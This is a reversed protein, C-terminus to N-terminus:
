EDAAGESGARTASQKRSSVTLEVDDGNGQHSRSEVPRLRMGPAAGSINSVVVRQGPQLGESILALEGMRHRVEVQRISLTSDTDVLWLREGERLATRPLAILNELMKGKVQVRVFSGIALEPTGPPVSDFPDYVRVIIRALRGAPDLVGLSRDVVGDYSYVGSGTDLMVEAESGPITLWPLDSQQLTVEIEFVDTGYVAAIQSSPGVVQGPSVNRMRVRCNFPATLTTRELNLEASHLSAIASAHAAQAQKLQPQHLVLADPEDRRTSDGKALREWEQRAIRANAQAMELQYEAQAVQARAQEVRLEYDAQEIRLMAEGADFSGGAVLKPSVWDVKGSVQPVVTVEELPSVTGTSNLLFRHNGSEATIVEVLAGPRDVAKRKPAPRSNILVFMIIAGLALVGIPLLIRLRSRKKEETTM